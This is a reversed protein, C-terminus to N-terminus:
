VVLIRVRIEKKERGCWGVGCGGRGREAVVAWVPFDSGTAGEDSVEGGNSCWPGRCSRRRRVDEEDMTVNDFVGHNCWRRVEDLEDSPRCEDAVTERKYSTRWWGRHRM